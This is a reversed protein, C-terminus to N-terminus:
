VAFLSQTSHFATSTHSPALGDEQQQRFAAVAILKETHTLGPVQSAAREFERVTVKNQHCLRQILPSWVPEFHRFWWGPVTSHAVHGRRSPRLTQIPTMQHDGKM